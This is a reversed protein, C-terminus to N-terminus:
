EEGGPDRLDRRYVERRAEDRLEESRVPRLRGATGLPLRTREPVAAERGLGDTKAGGLELGLQEALQKERALQEFTDELDGGREAIIEQRTKLGNQIAKENASEDKLPDVWDWGRPQWSPAFLREQLLLPRLEDSVTLSWELWHRFVRDCLKAIIWRQIRRWNVREELIGTRISSYNVGELDSALTNYSVGLGSAVKQLQAKKFAAYNGSPYDPDYSQFEWGIPLQEIIGPEFESIPEKTDPDTDQGAYDDGTPTKLFGMKSAAARAAVLEAEEYGSLMKLSNMATHLWPVGRVQGIRSPRFVHIIREAPAVEYENGAAAYVANGPHERLFYYSIPRRTKRDREVGMVIPNKGPLDRNLNEDLHDAEILNLSYGFPNRDSPRDYIEELLVEGDRPVSETIIELIGQWSYEGCVTPVGEAAWRKWASEIIRNAVQDFEGNRFKVKSQLRIGKPGVVNAVVMELFRKAYDDNIALDRSRSRLLRLAYRIEGNASLQLPQWDQSLRDVKAGAYGRRGPRHPTKRKAVRWELSGFPGLPIKM